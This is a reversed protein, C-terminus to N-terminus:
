EREGCSRREHRDWKGLFSHEFSWSKGRGGTGCRASRGGEHHLDKREDENEDNEIEQQDPRLLPPHLLVLRHHHRYLRAVRRDGIAAQDALDGLDVLILDLELDCLADTDADDLRHQAVNPWVAGLRRVVSSEALMSCKGRQFTHPMTRMQKTVT